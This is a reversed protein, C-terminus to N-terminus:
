GGDGELLRRVPAFRRRHVPAPGLRQLAELHRQTPYGKHQAFGYGPYVADLKVMLRDRAVKAVISAAAISFCTADGHIIAKCPAGADSLHVADVLLFDPRSRLKEIARAMSLRTAQLVGLTDIEQHSAEGIGVGLAIAELCSALRTRLSPALLKSDRVRKTWPADCDRPLVVAAAM